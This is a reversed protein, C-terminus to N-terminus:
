KDPVFLKLLPIHESSVWFFKEVFLFKAFDMRRVTNGFGSLKNGSGGSGYSHIKPPILSYDVSIEIPTSKYHKFLPEFGVFLLPGVNHNILVHRFDWQSNLSTLQSFYSMFSPIAVDKREQKTVVCIKPIYLKGPILNGSKQGEHLSNTM